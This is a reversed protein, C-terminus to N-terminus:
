DSIDSFSIVPHFWPVAFFFSRSWVCQFNKYISWYRIINILLSACNVLIKTFCNFIYKYLRIEVMTFLIDWIKAVYLKVGCGELMQLSTDVATYHEIPWPYNWALGIKQQLYGYLGYKRWDSWWFFDDDLDESINKYNEIGFYPSKEIIEVPKGMGIM